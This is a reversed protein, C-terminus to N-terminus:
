VVEFSLRRMSSDSCLMWSESNHGKHQRIGTGHWLKKFGSRVPCSRNELQAKTQCGAFRDEWAVRRRAELLWEGILDCSLRVVTGILTSLRSYFGKLDM